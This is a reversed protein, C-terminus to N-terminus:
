DYRLNIQFDAGTPLNDRYQVSGNHLSIIQKVIFLGLGTGKTSRTDEDGGRYFKTFIEERQERPIGPGLDKVGFNIFGDSKKSYVTIANGGGYKIANEVLNNVATEILFQDANIDPIPKTELSIQIDPYLSTFRESISNLLINLNFKEKHLTLTRNELRTANLIKDIMKELRQNEEIAKGLLENKKEPDLERKAITQLYLKNAALPTKLEHTVSLMFNKQRQGLTLQKKISRRIQWLGLLLVLLFVAGEGLVMAMRKGIVDSEKSVEETLEILHYGWWIFQVVVYISLLYFILAAQRNM